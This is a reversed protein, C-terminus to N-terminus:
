ADRDTTTVATEDSDGGPAGRESVHRAGRMPQATPEEIMGHTASAGEVAATVLADSLVVTRCLTELGLTRYAEARLPDNIKAIVRPVGFMHKALQAAMVNRNDGETLAMFVEALEAEASRLVDEDTGNGRITIGGYDAPLREFAHPNVDIVTVHDGRQDLRAATAAGVRGCGIVIVRM